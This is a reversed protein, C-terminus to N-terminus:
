DQERCIPRDALGSSYCRVLAMRVEAFEDWANIMMSHAHETIIFRDTIRDVYLYWM